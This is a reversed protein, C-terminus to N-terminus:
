VCGRCSEGGYCGCYGTDCRDARHGSETGDGPYLSAGCLSGDVDSDGVFVPFLSYEICLCQYETKEDSQFFGALHQNNNQVYRADKM